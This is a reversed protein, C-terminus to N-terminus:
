LLSSIISYLSLLLSIALVAALFLAGAAVMRRQDLPLENLADKFPGLMDVLRDLPHQEAPPATLPGQPPPGQPAPRKTTAPEPTSPQPPRGQQYADAPRQRSVAPASQLTPTAPIRAVQPTYPQQPPVIPQELSSSSMRMARAFDDQSLKPMTMDRSDVYAPGFVRPSDDPGQPLVRGSQPPLQQPRPQAPHQASVREARTPDTHPDNGRQPQPRDARTSDSRTNDQSAQQSRRLPSAETTPAWDSQDGSRRLPREEVTDSTHPSHRPSTASDDPGLQDARLPTVLVTESDAGDDEITQRLQPDANLPKTYEDRRLEVTAGGEPDEELRTRAAHLETSIESLSDELEAMSVEDTRDIAVEDAMLAYRLLEEPVRIAELTETREEGMLNVLAETFEKITQFRESPRKRLSRLIVEELEPSISPNLKRPPTPPAEVQAMMLAFETSANFPVEGTVLKYITIGMSYIDARGDIKKSGVIQEPSMYHLTGVTTGTATLERQRNMKAVGFDMIKPRLIPGLRQVLLNSPKLDRHIIGKSHALGLGSMIPIIVELMERLQFPGREVLMDELTGGEIFEMVFALVPAEVLEFVRLINPHQLVMQIRGEDVFRARVVPNNAYVEHLCKIAVPTGRREDIGLYVTAMGGDALRREVRYGAGLRM